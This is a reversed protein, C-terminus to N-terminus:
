NVASARCTAHTRKSRSWSRKMAPSAKSTRASRHLGLMRNYDRPMCAQVFRTRGHEDWDTSCTTRARASQTYNMHKDIMTKVAAIEEPEELATFDVMEKNVNATFDGHEDLVYRSAARCAPARLQPRDHGLVVVRGGTM